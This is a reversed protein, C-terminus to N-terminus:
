VLKTFRLAIHLYLVISVRIYCNRSESKM